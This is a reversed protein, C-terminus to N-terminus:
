AWDIIIHFPNSICSSLQIEEWKHWHLKGFLITVNNNQTDCFVVSVKGWMSSVFLLSLSYQIQVSAARGLLFHRQLLVSHGRIYGRFLCVFILWHLLLLHGWLNNNLVKVKSRIEQYYDKWILVYWKTFIIASGKYM